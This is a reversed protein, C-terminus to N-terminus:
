VQLGYTASARSCRRLMTARTAAPLSEINARKPNTVSYVRTLLSPSSSLMTAHVGGERGCFSSTAMRFTTPSLGRAQMGTGGLGAGSVASEHALLAPPLHETTSGTVSAVAHLVHPHAEAFGRVADDPPQQLPEVLDGRTGPTLRRVTRRLM